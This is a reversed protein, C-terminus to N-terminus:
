VLIVEQQVKCNEPDEYYNIRYVVKEGLTDPDVEISYAGGDIPEGYGCLFESVSYTKSGEGYVYIVNECGGPGTTKLHDIGFRELNEYVVRIEGGECVNSRDRLLYSGLYFRLESREPSNGPNVYNGMGELKKWCNKFDRKELCDILRVKNMVLFNPNLIHDFNEQIKECSGDVDNELNEFIEGWLYGEGLQYIIESIFHGTLLGQFLFHDLLISLFPDGNEAYLSALISSTKLLNLSKSAITGSPILTGGLNEFEKEYENIKGFWIGTGLYSCIGSNYISEKDFDKVTLFDNNLKTKQKELSLLSTEIVPIIKLTGEYREEGLSENSFKTYFYFTMECDSPKELTIIPELDFYCLYLNETRNCENAYTEVRKGGCMLDLDAELNEIDSRITVSLQNDLLHCDFDSNLIQCYIENESVEIVKFEESNAIVSFLLFFAIVLVVGYYKKMRVVRYM